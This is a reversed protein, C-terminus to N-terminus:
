NAMFQCIIVIPFHKLHMPQLIIFIFIIIHYCIYKCIFRKSCKEVFLRLPASATHSFQVLSENMCSQVVYGFLLSLSSTCELVFMWWRKCQAPLMGLVFLFHRCLVTISSAEVVSFIVLFCFRHQSQIYLTHRLNVHLLMKEM